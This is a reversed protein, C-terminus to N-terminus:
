GRLKKIGKLISKITNKSRANSNLDALIYGYYESLTKFKKSKNNKDYRIIMKKDGEIIYYVM